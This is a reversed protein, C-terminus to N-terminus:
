TCRTGKAPSVAKLLYQDVAQDICTSGRGYATHGDGDFTLLVGSSLQAALAQAGAYPTAPDRTTGVVVIPPTGPARIAHPRGTPPVPWYACPLSSWAISTGFIPSAQRFAPLEAKVDDVSRVDPYDLCNIAINAAVENTPYHGSPDRGDYSDSLRLLGRGDGALALRLAGRLVPWSSNSYLTAVIGTEALGEDLPRNADGALPQARISSLLNALRREAVGADTGLPCSSRRVCDAIFSHLALEFGAAQQRGQEAATLRPNIAGDLVFRGVRTPFLGAYTAGLLTGYSFGFYDLKQQGLAQRLVDMDRAADQTGVHALLRASHTQCQQALLKAEAVVQDQEAQTQPDPDEAVYTDTQADNLCAVPASLGVGRPDFGVMDYQALLSGDFVQGASLAFDAGSAGPGGPNIVLSGLRRSPDGATKRVVAIGITVSRPRQYDLPVTLTSCQFGQSCDRWNLTQQYFRTLSRPTAVLAHRSPSPLGPVPPLASCAALLCATLAVTVARFAV